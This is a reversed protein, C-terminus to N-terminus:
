VRPSVVWMVSTNKPFFEIGLGKAGFDTYSTGYVLGTIDFNFKDEM